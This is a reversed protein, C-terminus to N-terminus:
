RKSNTNRTKKDRIAKNNSRLTIYYTVVSTMLVIAYICTPILPMAFFLNPFIPICILGVIVPIVASFALISFRKWEDAWAERDSKKRSSEVFIGIISIIVYPVALSTIASIISGAALFLASTNSYAPMDSAFLNSCILYCTMGLFGVCTITGLVAEIIELKSRQMSPQGTNKYRTDSARKM